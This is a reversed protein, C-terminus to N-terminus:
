VTTPKRFYKRPVILMGFCESNEKGKHKHHAFHASALGRLYNNKIKSFIGFRNHIVVEHVFVYTAGYIAIGIGIYLRFDCGAMIGFQMFLWSPIAFIVVFTDNNQFFGPTPQHHDKHMAWMFGHMVFKHAFWAVFEMFFFAAIIIAINIFIQLM